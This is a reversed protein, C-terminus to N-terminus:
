AKATSKWGAKKQATVVSRRICESKCGDVVQTGAAACNAREIILDIRSNKPATVLM